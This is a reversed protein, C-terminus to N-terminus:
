PCQGFSHDTDCSADHLHRHPNRPLPTFGLVPAFRSWFASVFMSAFFLAVSTVVILGSPGFPVPEGGGMTFQISNRLFFGILGSGICFAITLWFIQRLNRSLNAAAATPVILMANILLAGVAMISLNVVLALIVIFLYNNLQVSLGRTRALTPNFSGFVLQNYKWAFLPTVLVGLVMLYVLNEEPILVLNGFLFTEPNFVTKVRLVQFLMGGFGIVLAFFVGIVTDHALGTQERVYVMSVGVAVGFGVMILPVAWAYTSRDGGTLLVSLFGLSVGAIASHAMTDSFFAMRNGVVLSGIMGCLSCVLLIAMVGKVEFSWVGLTDSIWFVFATLWDVAINGLIPM